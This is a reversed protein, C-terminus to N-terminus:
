KNIEDLDQGMDVLGFQNSSERKIIDIQKQNEEM